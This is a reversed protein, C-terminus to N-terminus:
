FASQIMLYLFLLGSLLAFAGYIYAFRRTASTPAEVYLDDLRGEAKAREYEDPRENLFEEESIRGTAFLPDLPFKEPRLNSHFMHASFIFGVALLAEHGHVIVAVNASWGPLVRTAIVPFWLILGTAGIIAIGWFVSWFDFKEWYTWRDYRPKKGLFLFWRVNAVMDKLDRWQPILTNPGWFLGKERRAVARVAIHVLYILISTLMVVAAFRHVISSTQPGGLRRM